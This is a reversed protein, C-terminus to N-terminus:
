HEEHILPKTKSNEFTPRDEFNVFGVYSKAEDSSYYGICSLVKMARAIDKFIWKKRIFRKMALRRHEINLKHFPPLRFVIFPLIYRVYFFLLKLQNLTPSDIKHLFADMRLATDKPSLAYEDTVIITEIVSEYTEFQKKTFYQLQNNNAM